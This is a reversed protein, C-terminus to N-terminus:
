VLGEDMLLGSLYVRMDEQKKIDKSLDAPTKVSYLEFADKYMKGREAAELKAKCWAMFPPFNEPVTPCRKKLEDLIVKDDAAKKDIARSKVAQGGEVGLEKKSDAKLGDLFEKSENDAAKGDFADIVKKCKEAVEMTTTGLKESISKGYAETNKDYEQVDAGTIAPHPTAKPMSERDAPKTNEQIAGMPKPPDGPTGQVGQHKVEDAPITGTTSVHVMETKEPKEPNHVAVNDDSASYSQSTFHKKETDADALRDIEAEEIEPSDGDLVENEKELEEFMSAQLARAEEATKPTENLHLTYHLAKKGKYATEQPRRELM